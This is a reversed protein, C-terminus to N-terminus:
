KGLKKITSNNILSNMQSIATKNLSELRNQQSIGRKILEANISEMNSLVILQEVRAYDRINGEKEKNEERWQKATLGFLAVNLVDAENAYIVGNKPIFTKPLIHEKIADTHIKYNIKSLSRSLDWELSKNEIEDEKLRQFEKILFLKFEASIWSAFEFAIDKHAYTGGYRGTKSIIGIANTTSIWQKPTLIFSNVGAQNKIGDFEISNFDQNNIKEWLGLFEITDKSRMWNQLIYDSRNLDRYRAIDTLSIFDKKEHQRIKINTDQVIIENSM